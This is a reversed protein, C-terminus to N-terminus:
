TDYIACGVFEGSNGRPMITVLRITKTTDVTELRTELLAAADAVSNQPDTTYVTVAYNAMELVEEEDDQNTQPKISSEGQPTQLVFILIWWIVLVFLVALPALLAVLIEMRVRQGGM